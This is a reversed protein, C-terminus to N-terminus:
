GRKSYITNWRKILLFLCEEEPNNGYITEDLIIGCNVCEMSCTCKKTHVNPQDVDFTDIFITIDDKHNCVPCPTYMEEDITIVKENKRFTFEQIPM